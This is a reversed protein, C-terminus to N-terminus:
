CVWNSGRAEAGAGERGRVSRGVEEECKHLQQRQDAASDRKSCSALLVHRQLRAAMGVQQEGTVARSGGCERRM